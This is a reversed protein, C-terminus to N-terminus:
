RKDLTFSNGTKRRTRALNRINVVKLGLYVLLEALSLISFGCFLGIMGGIGAVFDEWTYIQNEEHYEYVNREAYKLTVIMQGPSTVITETTYKTNSCPPPCSTRSDAPYFLGKEFGTQFCEYIVSRTQNPNFYKEYLKGPIYDKCFDFVDGCQKLSEVCVHSDLCNAVTYRGPFIIRSNNYYQDVCSDPSDRKMRQKVTKEITIETDFSQSIPITKASTIPSERHDHIFAVAANEKFTPDDISFKLEINHQTNRFNGNWNWTICRDDQEFVKFYDTNLDKEVCDGATPCYVTITKKPQTIMRIPSFGLFGRWREMQNISRNKHENWFGKTNCSHAIGTILTMIGSNLPTGCFINAVKIKTMCITVAPFATGKNDIRSETNWYVDNIWFKSFLSRVM